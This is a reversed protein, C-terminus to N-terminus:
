TMLKAQRRTKLSRIEYLTSSLFYSGLGTQTSVRTQSVIFDNNATHASGDIEIQFLVRIMSVLAM